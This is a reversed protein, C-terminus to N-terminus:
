NLLFAGPRISHIHNLKLKFQARLASIVTNPNGPWLEVFKARENPTLKAAYQSRATMVTMVTMVTM